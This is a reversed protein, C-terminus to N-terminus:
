QAGGEEELAERARELTAMAADIAAKAERARRRMERLREAKAENKPTEPGPDNALRYKVIQGGDPANGCHVQRVLKQRVLAQLFEKAYTRSVSALRVLDDASVAKGRKHHLRVARWMRDEKGDAPGAQALRYLGTGVHVVRGAAKLDSMVRRLPKKEADTIYDFALAIDAIAVAGDETGVALDAMVALVRSPYSQKRPGGNPPMPTKPM